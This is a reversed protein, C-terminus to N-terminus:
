RGPGVNGDFLELQEWRRSRSIWWGFATEADPFNRGTTLGKRKRTEIMRRFAAKYAKVFLPFRQIDRMKKNQTMMPCLICGIRDYGQRYLDPTLLGRERIYGWVQSDSWDIIPHIFLTNKKAGGVEVPQRLRRKASEAWRVGTVVMQGSGLYEKLLL